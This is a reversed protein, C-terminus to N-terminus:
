KRKEGHELLLAQSATSRETSVHHPVVNSSKRLSAFRRRQMTSFQSHGTPTWARQITRCCHLRLSM